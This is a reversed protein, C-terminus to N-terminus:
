RFAFGLAESSPTPRSVPTSPPPSAPTLGSSPTAQSTSAKDKRHENYHQLKGILPLDITLKYFKQEEEKGHVIKVRHCLQTILSGFFLKEVRKRGCSLIEERIISGINIELGKMISYLFMVREIFITNHHTTPMLLNKIFHLWVTPEPKLDSPVFSKVKTQSEKWQVGKRAVLGLAERLKKATPNKIADNGRLYFPAKVRYIRNIDVFSFSVMKGRVVALSM